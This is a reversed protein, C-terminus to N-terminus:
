PKTNYLKKKEWVNHIQDVWQNFYSDAITVVKQCESGHKFKKECTICSWM